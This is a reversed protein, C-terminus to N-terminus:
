ENGEREDVEGLIRRLNDYDSDRVAVFGTITNKISTLVDGNRDENGLRYLAARLVDVTEAPVSGGAVFLHESIEPTRALSVLGRKEYERFVEEKVAGADFDGSLVGLAVNHHNRLFRYYSLNDVTVGRQLLMHRPVLHSMTSHRDGFAFRKGSLEKLSRISSGRKVVIYGEFTPKGSVELRAILPKEGYREVMRVYGAPGMFAIYFENRGMRDIHDNYDKSIHIEFTKGTKESFYKAVPSFRRMLEIAPLYPHVGLIVTDQASVVYPM